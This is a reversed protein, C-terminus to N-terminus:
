FAKRTSQNVGQREPQYIVDLFRLYNGLATQDTVAFYHSRHKRLRISLDDMWNVLQEQFFNNKKLNSGLFEKRVTDKDFYCCNDDLWTLDTELSSLTHILSGHCGLESVQQYQGKCLADTIWYARDFSKMRFRDKKFYRDLMKPAFNERALSNFLSLIYSPSGPQYSLGPERAEPQNTMWIRIQDGLRLHLHSLHLALRLAIELKDPVTVSEKLDKDPWQMTDTNDFIIGVKVSAEDKQERVILQDTRGFAKWDIMSVPDGFTYSRSYEPEKSARRLAMTYSGHLRLSNRPWSSHCEKLHMPHLVALSAPSSHDQHM